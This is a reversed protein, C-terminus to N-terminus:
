IERTKGAKHSSLAEASLKELKGARIDREIQEDWAAADYHAFWSRFASLGARDLKKVERELLQVKTV